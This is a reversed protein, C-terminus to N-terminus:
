KLNSNYHNKQPRKKIREKYKITIQKILLISLIKNLIKIIINMDKNTLDDKNLLYYLLKNRLSELLCKKNIQKNSQNYKNLIKTLYSEIIFILQTIAINQKIFEINKNDMNNIKTEQKIFKFHTEIEWRQKYIKKIQEL